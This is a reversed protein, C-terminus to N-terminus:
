EVMLSTTKEEDKPIPKEEVQLITEVLCDHAEEIHKPGTRKSITDM